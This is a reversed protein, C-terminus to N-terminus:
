ETRGRLRAHAMQKTPPWENTLASSLHRMSVEAEAPGLNHVRGDQWHVILEAPRITEALAHLHELADHLVDHRDYVTRGHSCRWRRDAQEAAHLFWAMPRADGVVTRCVM